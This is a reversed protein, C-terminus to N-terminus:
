EQTEISAEIEETNINKTSDSEEVLYGLGTGVGAGIFLFALPSINKSRAFFYGALGGLALGLTITPSFNYKNKSGVDIPTKSESTDSISTETNIETSENNDVESNDAESNNADVGSVHNIPVVPLRRRLVKRRKIPIVTEGLNGVNDLLNANTIM